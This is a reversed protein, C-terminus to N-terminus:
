NRNNSLSRKSQFFKQLIAQCDATLVGPIVEIQHNLRSDKVVNLVSGCGGAKPDPAGYIIRKVRAQVLAGACMICPEITVYTDVGDLRWNDVATAAQTIAIMEAHATPDKLREKQNHARAIIRGNLVMVAGVPVESEELAQRAEKLCEKLYFEHDRGQM